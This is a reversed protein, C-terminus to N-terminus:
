PKQKKIIYNDIVLFYLSLRAFYAYSKLLIITAAGITPLRRESFNEINANQNPKADAAPKRIIPYKKSLFSSSNYQIIERYIKDKQKYNAQNTNKKDKPM